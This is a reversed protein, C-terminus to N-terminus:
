RLSERRLSDTRVFRGEAAAEVGNANEPGERQLGWKGGVALDLGNIVGALPKVVINSGDFRTNFGDFMIKSGAFMTTFGDFVIKFGDFMTTFGAFVVTFGDFMTNFGDFVVKFGAFMTTFGDFV